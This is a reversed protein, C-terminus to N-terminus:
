IQFLLPEHGNARQIRWENTETMFYLWNLAMIAMELALRVEIKLLGEATIKLKKNGMIKIRTKPYRLELAGTILTTKSGEEDM